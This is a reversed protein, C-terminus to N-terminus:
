VRSHVMLLNCPLDALIYEIDHTFIRDFLGLPTDPSNVVLLDYGKTRAYNSIAYGPKGSVSKLLIEVEQKETTDIMAQLKQTEEEVMEKKIKNAESNTTSDATTLMFAPIDLEQIVTLEKIKETKAFYVATHITHVSKPNDVGHIVVKKFRRPTMQPHTLLLVSCKAKRCINRAISGVYFKYLNEKELAGLILLDVVNLKCLELITDTPDGQMWIIRLKNKNFGINNVLTELTEEKLQDKEGIHMLVIQCKFVEAYHKAEHLMAELRPSFAVAVGITEFPYSPRKKLKTIDM